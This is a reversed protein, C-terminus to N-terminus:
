KKKKKKKKKTRYRNLKKKSRANLKMQYIGPKIKLWNTASMQSEILIKDYIDKMLLASTDSPIIGQERYHDIENHFEEGVGQILKFFHKLRGHSNNKHPNIILFYIIYIIDPNTKSAKYLINMLNYEHCLIQIKDYIKVFHDISIEKSKM